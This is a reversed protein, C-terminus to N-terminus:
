NNEFIEEIIAGIAPAVGCNARLSGVIAGINNINANEANVSDTYANYAATYDGMAEAVGDYTIDVFKSNYCAEVLANFKAEKTTAANYIAMSELFKDSAEKKESLIKTFEDFIAIAEEARDQTVDINFYYAAAEDYYAKQEAYTEATRMYEVRNVFMVANEKLLNEYNEGELVLEAEVTELNNIISSIESRKYDIDNEALYRRMMAAMGLKAIYADSEDILVLVENLYAIHGEQLVNYFYEYTTEFYAIAEDIGATNIDYLYGGDSDRGLIPSKVIELYKNIIEFNEIWQEETTYEDIFGICTLIKESNDERMKQAIVKDANLYVNYAEVYEEFNERLANEPNKGIDNDVLNGDVLEKAKNYYRELASLTSVETFRSMYRVFLPVNTDQETETALVSFKENYEMYDGKGDGDSDRNKDILSAYLLTFNNIEDILSTRSAVTTPKRVIDALQTVKEIYVDLNDLKVYVLLDDIEFALYDDVAKKLQPDAEAFQTYSGIGAEEDEWTWYRSLLEGAANYSKYRGNYDRDEDVFYNHYYLYLEDTSMNNLKYTDRYQTGSYFKFNDLSVDGEQATLSWRFVSKQFSYTHNYYTADTEGVLEGEIYARVTMTYPDLVFMFHTWRGPIIIGEVVTRSAAQEVKDEGNTTTGNAKTGPLILDGNSNIEMYNPPHISGLSGSTTETGGPQFTISKGSEIGEFTCLDFEIVYGNSVDYSSFSIQYFNEKNSANPNFFSYFYKNGNEEQGIGAGNVTSDKAVIQFEALTGSNQTKVAESEYDIDKYVPYSYSALTNSDDLAKYLAAKAAENAEILAPLQANISDYISENAIVPICTEIFYTTQNINASNQATKGTTGVDPDIDEFLQKAFLEINTDYRTYVAEAGEVSTDAPVAAIFESASILANFVTSKPLTEDEKLDVGEAVDLKKTILTLTVAVTRKIADDYGESSPDVTTYYEHIEDLASIRATDNKAAELTEVLVVLEEVTGTYGDDTAIAVVTFATVLLMCVLIACLLKKFNKM